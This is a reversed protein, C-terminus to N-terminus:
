CDPHMQRETLKRILLGSLIGIVIGSVVGGAILAPLYAMLIARDLLVAAALLQGMNHMVGGIVSVGTPSLQLRKWRRAWTMMLLSLVGGAMSFAFSYLNGFLMGMLAIRVLSVAWAGSIGITYLCVVTVINAIGLKVGPIPVPIPILSELYSFIMSLAVLVGFLAVRETKNKPNLM